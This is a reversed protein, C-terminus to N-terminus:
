CELKEAFNFKGKNDDDVTGSVTVSDGSAKCTIKLEFGAGKLFALQLHIGLKGSITVNTLGMFQGGGSSHLKAEEGELFYALPQASPSSLESILLSM